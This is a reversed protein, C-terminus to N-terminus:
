RRRRGVYTEEEVVETTDDYYSYDENNVEESVLFSSRESKNMMMYRQLDSAKTLGHAKLLRYNERFLKVAEEMNIKSTEDFMLDERNILLFMEANQALCGVLATYAIEVEEKNLSNKFEEFSSYKDLGSAEFAQRLFRDNEQTQKGEDLMKVEKKKLFDFLGM